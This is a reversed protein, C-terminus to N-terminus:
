NVKRHKWQATVELPSCKQDEIYQAAADRDMVMQAGNDITV